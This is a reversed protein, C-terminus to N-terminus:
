YINKDTIGPLQGNNTVFSDEKKKDRALKLHQNRRSM